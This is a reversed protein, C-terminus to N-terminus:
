LFEYTAKVDKTYEPSCNTHVYWTDMGMGQAGLIDCTQDNGLMLCKSVDLGEKEILTKFFNVNPKKVGYDSSIYIADFYKVIDLKEMEHYTFSRQANSLLFVKKGNAKLKELIPLSWPYLKLYETSTDRFFRCTELVVEDSVEVGKKEFLKRFVKEVQIEESKKLEEKVYKLYGTHIGSARYNAGRDRYYKALAKWLNEDEEDTHIDILTGYLDFIYNKYKLDVDVTKEVKLSIEKGALTFEIRNEDAFLFREGRADLELGENVEIENVVDIIQQLVDAQQEDLALMLKLVEVILNKVHEFIERYVESAEELTDVIKEHLQIEQNELYNDRMTIKYMKM